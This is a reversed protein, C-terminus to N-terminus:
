LGNRTKTAVAIATIFPHHYFLNKETEAQITYIIGKSVLYRNNLPATTM